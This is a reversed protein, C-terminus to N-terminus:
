QVVDAEVAQGSSVLGQSRAKQDYEAAIPSSKSALYEEIKEAVDRVAPEQVLARHDSVSVRIEYSTIEGRVFRGWGLHLDPYPGQDRFM